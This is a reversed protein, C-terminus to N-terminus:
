LRRRLLAIAVVLASLGMAYLSPEPVVTFTASMESVTPMGTALPIGAENAIDQDYSFINGASGDTPIRFAFDSGFESLVYDSRWFGYKAGAPVTSGENLEPFWYLGLPDNVSIGDTLYLSVVAGNFGRRPASLGLDIDIAAFTEIIKNDGGIITDVSLNVGLLSDANPLGDNNADVVLIGASNLPVPNGLHDRVAATEFIITVTASLSHILFLLSISTKIIKM